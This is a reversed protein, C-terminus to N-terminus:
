KGEVTVEFQCSANLNSNDMTTCSVLVTGIDFVSGDPPDCSVLPNSADNDSATIDTWNVVVSAEGNPLVIPIGFSPCNIIVPPEDDYIEIIFACEATNGYADSANYIVVTKGIEFLDGLMHTQNLTYWGSNDSVTPINWEVNASAQGSATPMSMYSPCNLFVPDENDTIIVTFNCVAVNGALDFATYVVITVGITFNDGSKNTSNVINVGINDTAVVDKWSVENYNEGMITTKNIDSPCNIFVPDETDNDFVTVNITCMAQNGSKDSATYTVITSGVQFSSGISKDPVLTVAM